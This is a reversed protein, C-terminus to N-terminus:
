RDEKLRQKATVKGNYLEAMALAFMRHRHGKKLRAKVVAATHIVYEPPFESLVDAVAYPDFNKCGSFAVFFEAAGDFVGGKVAEKTGGWATKVLRLVDALREGTHDKYISVLPTVEKIDLNSHQPGHLCLTFGASDVIREIELAEPDREAIRVALLNRGSTKLHGANLLRYLRAEEPVGPLHHLLVEIERDGVMRRMATIRHQGDVLWYSGDARQNVVPNAVAVWDWGSILRRIHAENIERQYIPGASQILETNVLAARAPADLAKLDYAGNTAAGPNDGNSKLRIEHGQPTSDLNRRM